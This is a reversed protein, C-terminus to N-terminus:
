NPRCTHIAGRNDVNADHYGNKYLLDHVNDFKSHTYFKYIQIMVSHPWQLISESAVACFVCFYKYAFRNGFM